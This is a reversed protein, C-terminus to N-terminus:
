LMIHCSIDLHLKKLPHPQQPERDYPLQQLLNQCIGIIKVDNKENVRKLHEDGAM